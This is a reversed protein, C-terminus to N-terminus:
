NASPDAPPDPLRPHHIPPPMFRSAESIEKLADALMSPEGYLGPIEIMTPSNARRSCSAVVIGHDDYVDLKWVLRTPPNNM